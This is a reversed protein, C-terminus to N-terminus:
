FKLFRLIGDRQSNFGGVEESPSAGSRYFEMGNPISVTLFLVLALFRRRLIGDRQSNFSCRIVLMWLSLSLSPLIGDRQSNFSEIPFCATRYRYLLIGDRQSNFGFHRKNPKGPRSFYFEMGNPISVKYIEALKFHWVHLIGDRQSNFCSWKFLPKDLNSPYFEMGNPISVM